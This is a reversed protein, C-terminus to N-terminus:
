FAVSHSSECHSPDGDNHHIMLPHARLTNLLHHQQSDKIDERSRGHTNIPPADVMPEDLEPAQISEPSLVRLQAPTTDDQQGDNPITHEGPLTKNGPPPMPTTTHHPQFLTPPTAEPTFTPQYEGPKEQTGVDEQQHRVSEMMNFIDEGEEQVPEDDPQPIELDDAGEM